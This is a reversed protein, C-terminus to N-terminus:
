SVSESIGQGLLYLITNVRASWQVVEQALHIHNVYKYRQRYYYKFYLNHLEDYATKQTDSTQINKPVRTQETQTNVSLTRWVCVCLVSFSIITRDTTCPHRQASAWSSFPLLHRKSKIQELKRQQSHWKFTSINNGLIKLKGFKQLM